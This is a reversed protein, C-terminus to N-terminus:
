IARVFAILAEREAKSLAKFHQQSATAEGGHWLIAESITRARGDHLFQQKGQIRQQMGIGWLPPTRWERGTASYEHVGDALGEGMDHLALDTYPWITLGALSQEPYNTDTVYSPRHCQHCGGQYFLKRGTQVQQTQLQRTPPVGIHLSFSMTLDFLKQNIELQQTPAGLAAAQLCGAQHGTCIEDNFMPNTIGIDTVFAAAVQQELTPHKAKFGFRGVAMKKSSAAVVRNYKASIGDGNSDEIDEQALLDHEKIADLLGMGYINPGFRPSIGIGQALPGYALDSLKILPKRLQYTEGDDFKGNIYQYTLSLKAEPKVPQKMASHRYDIARVQVQGGYIPDVMPLTGSTSGLRVLLGSGKISGEQEARGRGGKSHCTVCSRTNFLPGLGDRDDTSSPSIVWPDKFFTLGSWFALKDMSEIHNGPQIFTRKDLRKVTAKGGPKLESSNFGPVAHENCGTLAAVAILAAATFM